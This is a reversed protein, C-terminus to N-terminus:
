FFERTLKGLDNNCVSLPTTIRSNQINLDGHHLELKDPRKGNENPSPVRESERKTGPPRDSPWAMAILM